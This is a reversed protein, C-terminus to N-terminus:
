KGSGADGGGLGHDTSAPIPDVKFASATRGDDASGWCFAGPADNVTCRPASQVSGAMAILAAVVLSLRKM